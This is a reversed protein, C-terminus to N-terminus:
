PKPKPKPKPKPVVTSTVPASTVGGSTVTITSTAKLVLRLAGMGKATVRVRYTVPAPAAPVPAGAVPAPVAAPTVTVVAVQGPLLGSLQLVAATGVVPAARFRPLRLSPYAAVDVAARGADSRAVANTATVVARLAGPVLGSLALSTQAPPVVVTRGGAAVTYGTLPAGGDSAPATWTLTATGNPGPAATLAPPSPAVAADVTVPASPVDASVARFQSSVSVPVTTDFTGAASAVGAAVDAWTSTGDIPQSQLAVPANPVLGSFRFSAATGALVLADPTTLTPTVTAGRSAGVGGDLAFASAGAATTLSVSLGGPGASATSTAVSDAAGAARPVLVTVWQLDTGSQTARLSPAASIKGYESSSWGRYPSKSGKAVSLPAGGGSFLADLNAGSGSTHAADAALGVGRDAGLNWQQGARVWTDSHLRDWIVLADHSRDYAVTRTITTGRYGRDVTTAIDLDGVTAAHLPPTGQGVRPVGDVVVVNHAAHSIVYSRMAGYQYKWQGPDLLLPAGHAYLTMSSADDHAHPIGSRRGARMSFFTEDGLPRTVGWGSRGFVYGGTYAGFVQVPRAGQAGGTSSFEAVTGRLLTPSVAAPSTDGLAELRGDPRTAAAIFAPVNGLRGFSTPVADGGRRMREAAELFWGYNSLAYAPSAEGDSGDDNVLRTVLTGMRSVAVGRPTPFSLSKSLAYLGMSAHLSANNTGEYHRSNALWSVHQKMAAVLWPANGFPGAAACTLVLARYGEQIPGGWAYARTRGTPPNDKVWDGLVAYFRRIMASNHTRVGERLVPLLWFLSHLHDNGSSDLTSVARWTPNTALRFTGYHGITVKGQMVARAQAPDRTPAAKGFSLDCQAAAAALDVAPPVVPAPPTPTPAPATPAPPVAPEDAEVPAGAAVASVTLAATLSLAVLRFRSVRGLIM